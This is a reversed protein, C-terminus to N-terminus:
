KRTLYPSFGDLILEAMMKRNEPTDDVRKEILLQGYCAFERTFYCWLAFADEEHSLPFYPFVTKITKEVNAKFFAFDSAKEYRPFVRCYNIAFAGFGKRQIHEDMVHNFFTLFDKSLPAWKLVSSYYDEAVREDCLNLLNDKDHFHDYIMFESIGLRSAIEKTSFRNADGEGAVAIATLIIKEDIANM